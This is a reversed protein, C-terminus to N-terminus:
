RTGRKKFFQRLPKVYDEDTYITILNRKSQSDPLDM